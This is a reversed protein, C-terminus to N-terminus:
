RKLERKLEYYLMSAPEQATLEVGARRKGWRVADRSVRMEAFGLKQFTPDYLKSMTEIRKAQEADARRASPHEAAAMGRLITIEPPLNKILDAICYVSWVECVKKLNKITDKHQGQINTISGVIQDGERHLNMGLRAFCQGKHYLKFLWTAEPMRDKKTLPSCEITAHMLESRYGKLLAAGLALNDYAYERGNYNRHIPPAGLFCGTDGSTLSNEVLYDYDKLFRGLLFRAATPYLASNVTPGYYGGVTILANIIAGTPFLGVDPRESLVAERWPGKPIEYTLPAFRTRDDDEKLGDALKPFRITETCTVGM